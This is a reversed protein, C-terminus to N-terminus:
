QAGGKGMAQASYKLSQQAWEDAAKWDWEEREETAVQLYLQAATYDYPSKQEAGATKAEAFQENARQLNSMASCGTLLAGCALAGLIVAKVRTMEM